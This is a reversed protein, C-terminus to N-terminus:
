AFVSATWPFGTPRLVLVSAIVRHSQTTQRPPEAFRRNSRAAKAGIRLRYMGMRRNGSLGPISGDRPRSAATAASHVLELEALRDSAVQVRRLRPRHKRKPAQTRDQRLHSPNANRWVCVEGDAGVVREAKEVCPQRITWPPTLQALTNRRETKHKRSSDGPIEREALIVRLSMEACTLFLTGCSIIRISRRAQGRVHPFYDQM